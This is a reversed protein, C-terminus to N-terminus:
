RWTGKEIIDIEIGYLFETQKIKNRSEPTMFGKCDEYTVPTATNSVHNRVLFDLRYIIGGPLDFRVQRLFFQIAGALKLKQLHRYRDRELKSDFRQGDETVANASYKHGRAMRRYDTVSMRNM